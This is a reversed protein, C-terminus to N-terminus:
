AARLHRQIERVTHKTLDKDVEAIVVRRLRESLALRLAALTRPPAVVVLAPVSGIADLASAVEDAFRREAMAHWDTQEIAGRRDGFRVRAPRDTGQEHTPPNPEAGFALRVQLEPNLQFGANRLVLAKHGDCVVVYGGHPIMLNRKDTM